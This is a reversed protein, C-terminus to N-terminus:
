YPRATPRHSRVELANIYSANGERVPKIELPNLRSEYLTNRSIGYRQPLDAVPFRDIETLNDPNDPM